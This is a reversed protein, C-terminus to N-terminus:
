GVSRLAWHWQVRHRAWQWWAKFRGEHPATLVDRVYAAYPAVFARTIDGCSAVPAPRRRAREESVLTWTLPQLARATDDGIGPPVAAGAPSREFLSAFVLAAICQWVPSAAREYAIWRRPNTRNDLNLWSAYFWLRGNPSAAIFRQHLRTLEGVSDNWVLNAILTHQETVVLTDVGDPLAAGARDRMSTGFPTHRAQQLPLGLSQAIAAVSSPLPEDLLSHGSFFVRQPLAAHAPNLMSVALAFALAPKM